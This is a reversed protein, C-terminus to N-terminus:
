RATERRVREYVAVTEAATREWTFTAARALGREVLEARLTSDELVRTLAMQLAEQSGPSVTLGADGVVEVSTPVSSAVVPVGCAMAELLPFGFGEYASPYAFLDSSNYWLPLDEWRVYGAFFVHESLGESRVLDFLDEFMWGRAGVLVLMHPLQLERRLGAYARILVDINKRPQLTGVHLIYPRGGFHSVRFREITAAALPRFAPSVGSHVVTVKGEPIGLLEVVDARTGASVAIVHTARRVSQAVALKLYRSKAAPFMGPLRLFSLDHVTVVSPIRALLPVVNVTGHVLDVDHRGASWPFGTQEWAIRLVPHVTPVATVVSHVKEVPPADKGCFALFESDNAAGPLYRLLQYTYLSVGAARYDAGSHLLYAAIGVKM